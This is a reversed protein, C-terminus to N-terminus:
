SHNFLVRNLQGSTFQTIAARVWVFNGTFNLLHSQDPVPTIGDGLTTNDVDFWDTEAPSAVLTAQMKISGVFHNTTSYQITHIGGSSAYGRGKVKDSLLPLTTLPNAALSSFLVISLNSM